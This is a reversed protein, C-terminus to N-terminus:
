DLSWSRFELNKRYIKGNSKYYGDESTYGPTDEYYTGICEADKPLERVIYDENRSPDSDVVYDVKIQRMEEYTMRAM